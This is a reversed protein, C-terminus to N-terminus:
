LSSLCVYKEFPIERCEVSLHKSQLSPPIASGSPLHLRTPLALTSHPCRLSGSPSHVSPPSAPCLADTLAPRLLSPTPRLVDAVPPCHLCTTSFLPVPLMQSLRVNFCWPPAVSLLFGKLIRLLNVSCGSFAHWIRAKERDYLIVSKWPLLTLYLYSTYYFLMSINILSTVMAALLFIRKPTETRPQIFLSKLVVEFTQTLKM